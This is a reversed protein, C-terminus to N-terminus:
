TDTMSVQLWVDCDILQAGGGIIMTQSLIEAWTRGISTAKSELDVPDDM